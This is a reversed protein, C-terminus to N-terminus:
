RAAHTARLPRLRGLRGRAAEEVLASFLARDEGAEPHWLVGLVFGTDALEIAEVAGDEATAAAVLGAGLQRIGQHHHSHVTVHPGVISELKTGPRVRVRHELFAGPPDHKHGDHGVIEPLHQHLNGGLAVNLLQIGRCIGLVPVEAELAERLLAFEGEDRRDDVGFTEPHAPEDYCAPNIDSGGTFIVADVSEITEKAGEPTPPILVARGGAAHVAEVYDLPILAAKLRWYSWAADVAYTTVGVIPREHSRVPTM